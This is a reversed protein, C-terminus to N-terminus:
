KLTGSRKIDMSPEGAARYADQVADPIRGRDSIDHGNEKAWARVNKLWEANARGKRATRNNQLRTIPDGKAPRAADIFPALAGELKDYNADTLDIEFTQGGFAFIRTSADPKGDLDDTIILQTAM